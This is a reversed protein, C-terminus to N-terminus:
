RVNRSKASNNCWSLPLLKLLIILSHRNNSIRRTLSKQSKLRYM